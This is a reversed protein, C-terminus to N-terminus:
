HFEATIPPSIVHVDDVDTDNEYEEEERPAKHLYAVNKSLV